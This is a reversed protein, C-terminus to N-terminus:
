ENLKIKKVKFTISILLALYIIPLINLHTEGCFGFLHQIFEIM